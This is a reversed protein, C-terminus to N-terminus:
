PWNSKTSGTLWLSARGILPIPATILRILVTSIFPPRIILPTKAPIQFSLYMIIMPWTCVGQKDVAIAASGTKVDAQVFFAGQVPPLPPAGTRVIFPLFIPPEQAKAPQPAFIFIFLLALSVLILRVSATLRFQLM